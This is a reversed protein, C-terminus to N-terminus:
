PDEGGQLSVCTHILWTAFTIYECTHQLTNCHTTTHQPTNCHTATHRLTNCHRSSHRSDDHIRVCMQTHTMDCMYMDMLTNCQTASHQVANCYTATYRRSHQYNDHKLHLPYDATSKFSARTLLATVTARTRCRHLVRWLHLVGCM